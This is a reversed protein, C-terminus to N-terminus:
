LKPIESMRAKVLAKIKEALEVRVMGTGLRFVAWGAATAANYKECDSLFHGGRTHAGGSWVGGELEIATKTAVHAFDFRWKRVAGFRYECALDPGAVARWVLAFLREMASAPRAKRSEAKQKRSKM